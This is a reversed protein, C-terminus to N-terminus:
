KGSSRPPNTFTVIPKIYNYQYGTSVGFGTTSAGLTFGYSSYVDGSLGRGSGVDFSGGVGNYGASYNTV